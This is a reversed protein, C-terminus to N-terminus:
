TRQNSRRQQGGRDSGYGGEGGPRARVTSRHAAPSYNGQRGVAGSRAPGATAPRGFEPIASLRSYVKSDWDEFSSPVAGHALRRLDRLTLALLRRTRWAPPMPPLLRMALMAFAIGGLIAVASNYYRPPDYVNPNSPSILPIFNAQIAVFVAQQRPQAALAGAPVLVLGLAACLGGFTTLQPLLAFDVVAALIATLATGMTFARATAYATDEQPAFLTVAIVTFTIFTAGSPWATWIWILAAAGIALFARIANILAPLLDPVRLRAHRPKRVLWPQDIMLVGTAARGLALFGEATSDCLLRLSPSATPLTVLRRIATHLSARLARPDSLWRTPDEIAEPTTLDPPLSERLGLRECPQRLYSSSIPRSRAGPPSSCRVSRGRCGTNGSPTAAIRRDRRGGSRDRHRPRSNSTGSTPAANTVGGARNQCECRARLSWRRDRRVTRRAVDGAATPHRRSRDHGAGARRLRDRPLDRQHPRYRTSLCRREAGGIAGLEDGIIIAATYGSLAAAYSAFNRLLTATLACAAGWIALGLLFVARNQPFCASLVVAAIAGVVTGILRFWGKRLAAGLVPQCVLAATAGAWSPNDLELWFALFLALCVAAWLRVGYLLNPAAARLWGSIAPRRITM